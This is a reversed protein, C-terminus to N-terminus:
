DMNLLELVVQKVVSFASTHPAIFEFHAANEIMIIEADDGVNQAREVYMRAQDPSVIEDHYGHILRQTIGFPLLDLPNTQDYRDKVDAVTGDLLHLAAQNCDNPGASYTKIDTIGALSGVGQIRYPKPTYLPSDQSM